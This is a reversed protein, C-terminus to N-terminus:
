KQNKLLLLDNQRKRDGEEAAVAEAVAAAVVAEAAGAEVVQLQHLQVHQRAQPNGTVVAV